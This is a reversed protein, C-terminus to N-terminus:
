KRIIFLNRDLITSLISLGACFSASIGQILANKKYPFTLMSSDGEKMKIEGEPCPQPDSKRAEYRHMDPCLEPVIRSLYAIVTHHNQFMISTISPM